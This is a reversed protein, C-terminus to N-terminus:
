AVFCHLSTCASTSLKETEAYYARNQPTNTAINTMINRDCIENLRGALKYFLSRNYQALFLKSTRQLIDEFM